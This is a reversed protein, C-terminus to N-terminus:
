EERWEVKYVRVAEDFGNPTIEGSDSFSVTKGQCLDRVVQAVLIQSPEAHACLRAALQVATGFLDGHEEIPEGASIGIRLYLAEDANAENHTEFANQIAAACGVADSVSVFSSMMGDGTHKIENGHHNRLANRTMANHIRLLHLAKADGLHTTMVTSDKLDTFMIARFASDIAVKESSDVATPDQVRGLFAEVLSPDVDIIENPVNGHAEEHIRQIVGM